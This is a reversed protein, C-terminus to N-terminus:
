EAPPSPGTMRGRGTWRQLVYFIGAAITLIPAVIFAGLYFVLYTVALYRDLNNGFANQPVTGSIMCTWERLGIAHAVAFFVLLGAARVFFGAPSLAKAHLLLRLATRIRSM